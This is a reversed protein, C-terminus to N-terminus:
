PTPVQILYRAVRRDGAGAAIAAADDDVLPRLALRPGYLTPPTTPVAEIV